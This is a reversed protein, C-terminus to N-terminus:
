KKALARVKSSMAVAGDHAYSRHNAETKVPDYLYNVMVGWANRRGADSLDGAGHIDYLEAGNSLHFHAVPDFATGGDRRAQTLYRAALRRTTEDDPAADAPLNVGALVPDDPGAADVFARLGPVPSLTVFTELGPLEASLEAVVQKILFNGFSIGKLGKQCNSISYFVAVKAAGPDLPERGEALIEAIAGPVRDMLAVEVFILPEGPMAPHFFGFLRRDPDAVRARLDDWGSIAHVAEYAIIKELVAAPTSWDVRRLELFGRNFWSAFLHRFDGDLGRLHPRAKILGLLDARMRVLRATAGPVRNLVRILEQSRPEAAAHLRRAAEGDGPRWATIAAELAAEDVGFAQALAEFFSARAEADAAEYVDLIERGLVLGSAESREGLLEHCMEPLDGGHRAGPWAGFAVRRLIDSLFRREPM